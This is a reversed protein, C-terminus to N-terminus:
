ESDADDESSLNEDIVPAPVDRPAEGEPEPEPGVVDGKTFDTKELADIFESTTASANGLGSWPFADLNNKAFEFEGHSIRGTALLRASTTAVRGRMFKTLKRQRFSQSYKVPNPLLVALFSSELVNLDSPAKGFYYKSAAKVGFIKEGFQVVNLYKELIENKKLTKELEYTLFAEKAKEGFIKRHCPCTRKCSNFFRGFSEYTVERRGTKLM